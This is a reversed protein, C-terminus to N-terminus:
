KGEEEKGGGEKEEGKWRKGEGSRKNERLGKCAKGKGRSRM